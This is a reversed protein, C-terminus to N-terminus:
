GDFEWPLKEKPPQKKGGTLTRTSQPTIRLKTGVSIMAKSERDQMRLLREVEKSGQIILQKKKTLDKEAEVESDIVDQLMMVTKAIRGSAICHRCYQKLMHEIEAGFWGDPMREIVGAWIEAEDDTLDPPRTIEVEKLDPQALQVVEASKAAKSKRGRQAM